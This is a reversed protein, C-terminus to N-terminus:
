VRTDAQIKNMPILTHMEKQSYIIFYTPHLSRNSLAFVLNIHISIIKITMYKGCVLFSTWLSFTLCILGEDLTKQIPKSFYVNIFNNIPQLQRSQSGTNALSPKLATISTKKPSVDKVMNARKHLLQRLIQLVDFFLDIIKGRLQLVIRKWAFSESQFTM